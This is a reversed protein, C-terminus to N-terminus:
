VSEEKSLVQWLARKLQPSNAIADLEPTTLVNNNLAITAQPSFHWTLLGINLRHGSLSVEGISAGVSSIIDQFLTTSKITDWDLALENEADQNEVISPETTQCSKWLPIGMASLQTFQRKSITM